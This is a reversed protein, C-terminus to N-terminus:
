TRGLARWAVGDWRYTVGNPGAYDEGITPTNPFELAM